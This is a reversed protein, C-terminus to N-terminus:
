SAQELLKNNEKALEDFHEKIISEDIAQNSNERYAKEWPSGPLHTMKSLQIGDLESYTRFIEDMVDRSEDPFHQMIPKPNIVKDHEDLLGIDIVLDYEGYTPREIPERGYKKFADYVSRIVPGHRWAEVDDGILPRDCWALHWGHAFYVLKILQMPTLSKRQEEARALFYNAVARADKAV